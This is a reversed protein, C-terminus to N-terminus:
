EFTQRFRKSDDSVVRQSHARFVQRFVEHGVGEGIVAFDHGQMVFGARDIAYLEVRFADQGFMTM